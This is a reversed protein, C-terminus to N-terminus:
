KKTGLNGEGVEMDVVVNISQKKKKIFCIIIINLIKPFSEIERVEESCRLGMKRLRKGRM